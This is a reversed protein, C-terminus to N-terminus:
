FPDLYGVANFGWLRDFRSIDRMWSRHSFDWIEVLRHPQTGSSRIWLVMSIQSICGYAKRNIEEKKNKKNIKKESQLIHESNETFPSADFCQFTQFCALFSQQGYTTRDNKLGFPMVQYCYLRQDTVSNKRAGRETYTRSITKRFHPTGTQWSMGDYNSWKVFSLTKYIKSYLHSDWNSLKYTNM